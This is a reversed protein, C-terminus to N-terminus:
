ESFRRLAEQGTMGPKVGLRKAAQSVDTVPKELLDDLTKVGRVVAAAQQFKDAVTVDLYGCMIFGKEGRAILLPAGPLQIEFGVAKKKGIVLDRTRM